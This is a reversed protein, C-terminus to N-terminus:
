RYTHGNPCVAYLMKSTDSYTITYSDGDQPCKPASQLFGDKVLPHSNDLTKALTDKAEEATKGNVVLWQSIAGDIIRLNAQCAKEQAQAHSKNYMPVAIAVLIGIIMIVVMLEVLTFGEQKKLRRFM